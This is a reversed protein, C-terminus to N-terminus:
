KEVVRFQRGLIYCAFATGHRPNHVRFPMGLARLTGLHANLRQTLGYPFTGISPCWKGGPFLRYGQVRLTTYVPVRM